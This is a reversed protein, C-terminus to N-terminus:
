PGSGLPCQRHALILALYPKERRHPKPDPDSEKPVPVENRIRIWREGQHPDRVRKKHPDPDEVNHHSDAICAKLGDVAEPSGAGSKETQHPDLDPNESQHPDPDPKECPHKDPDSTRFHYLDM